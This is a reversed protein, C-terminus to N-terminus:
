PNFAEDAMAVVEEFLQPGAAVVRGGVKLMEDASQEEIRGGAEAILWRALRKLRKKLTDHYDRNRAYVSITGAERRELTAMPDGEPTYSEGLMIVSRAEPWLAAPNGRWHMREGMWGMDGHKGEAVFRALRDAIEPVADPRCVGAQAFGEDLAKDIIAAKVEATM